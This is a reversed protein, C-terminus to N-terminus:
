FIKLFKKSPRKIVNVEEKYFIILGSILLFFALVFIFSIPEHLFLYGFLATFFPSLFSAFTMFVVSYSRLLWAYLNYCIVCSLLSTAIVLILFQPMNSVPFPHWSEIFISTLLSGIGGILMTVGNVQASRYGYDFVLKKVFTWGITTAVMASLLWKDSGTIGWSANGQPYFLVIMGFLGILLGIWQAFTLRQRWIMYSLFAALFPSFCFILSVKTVSTQELGILEFTNTFYINFLAAGLFLFRDSRNIRQWEKRILIWAFLVLAAFLMRVAVLFFPQSYFLSAKMLIFSLSFGIYLLIVLFM